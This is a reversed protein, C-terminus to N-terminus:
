RGVYDIMRPVFPRRWQENSKSGSRGTSSNGGYRAPLTRLISAPREEVRPKMVM